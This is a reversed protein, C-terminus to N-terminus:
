LCANNIDYTDGQEIISGQDSPGSDISEAAGEEASSPQWPMKQVPKTKNGHSLGSDISEAVGEETSPLQWPTEHCAKM